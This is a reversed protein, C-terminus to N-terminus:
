DKRDTDFGLTAFTALRKSHMKRFVAGPDLYDHVEVDTKTDTTRLIRGIYQM